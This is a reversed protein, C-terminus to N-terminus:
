KVTNEKDVIVELKNFGIFSFLLTQGQEVTISFNGNIDTATGTTTDKVVVSVGPLPINEEDIVKGKVTLLNPQQADMAKVEYLVDLDHGAITVKTNPFLQRIREREQKNANGSIELKDIKVEALRDPIVVKDVFQITLKKIEKLAFIAAPIEEVRIAIEGKTKLDYEYKQQLGIQEVDIKRIMWGIQPTLTYNKMNQELGFFGAWLELPTTVGTDGNFYKVDVKVIEEPLNKSSTLTKLNNRRGENDYPFFKVIWGDIITVAPGCLPKGTTRTMLINKWFEKDIKGKSAKVFEKLIPELEDTWWTLDYKGLQKTKDLVKQWDEATGQLTIEPIGCSLYIVVYEFYSKMAEMITIESAIKEVSTTTSFDASLLNILENGTHKAIQNTFEPFIKEWPSNPDDLTIEGTLVVLSLKGSFDVFHHRLKEPDANVHQAFGQSILLWIMDPSLVVPRHDAYAQYIGNFFSHYGYSVLEDPMKSKAVIGFPIENMRVDNQNAFIDSLILREFIDKCSQTSLHTEPKSLKEITFTRGTQGFVTVPLFVFLSFLLKKMKMEKYSEVIQNGFLFISIVM